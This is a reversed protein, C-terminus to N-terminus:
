VNVVEVVKDIIVEEPDMKYEFPILTDLEKMRKILKPNKTEKIIPRLRVYASYGSTNVLWKKLQTHWVVRTRIGFRLLLDQLELALSKHVCRFRIEAIDAATSSYHRVMTAGVRYMKILFARLDDDSLTFIYDPFHKLGETAGYKQVTATHWEKQVGYMQGLFALANKNVAAPESCQLQPVTVKAGLEVVEPLDFEYGMSTRVRIM